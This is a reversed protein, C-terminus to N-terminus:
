KGLFDQWDEKFQSQWKQWYNELNENMKTFKGLLPKLYNQSNKLETESKQEDILKQYLALYELEVARNALKQSTKTAGKSLKQWLEIDLYIKECFETMKDIPLWFGNELYDIDKQDCSKQKYNQAKENELISLSEKRAESPSQSNEIFNKPNLKQSKSSKKILQYNIQSNIKFDTRVKEAKIEIQIKGKQHDTNLKQNSNEDNKEWKELDCSNVFFQHAADDVTIIPLGFSLAEFDTTPLNESRSTNVFVDCFGCIEELDSSQYAGILFVQKELKLELVQSQLNTIEPGNGAIIYRTKPYKLLIPAIIQIGLNLSKEKAIRGFTLFNFTNQLNEQLNLKKLNRLSESEQESKQTIKDIELSSQEWNLPKVDQIVSKKSKNQINELDESKQKFSPIQSNEQIQSEKQCNEGYNLLKIQIELLKQSDKELTEPRWKGFHNRNELFGFRGFVFERWVLSQDKQNIGLWKELKQKESKSLKQENKNNKQWFKGISEELNQKKLNRLKGNSSKELSENLLCNQKQEKEWLNTKLNYTGFEMEKHKKHQNKDCNLLKESETQLEEEWNKMKFDIELNKSDNAINGFKQWIKAENESNLQWDKELEQNSQASDLSFKAQNEIRENPSEISSQDPNTCNEPNPQWNELNKSDAWSNELIRSKPKKLIKQNPQDSKRQIKLVNPIQFIPSAVGIQRLYNATKPSVAVVANHADCVIQSYNRIFVRYGPFSFYDYDEVMTHYTHVCPIQLKMAIIVAEVGGVLTDQSHLIEVENQQLFQVTDKVFNYPMRLDSSAHKPASYSRLPLINDAYFNGPVEPTVIFVQHGLALFAQELNAVAVSVGNLNPTYSNTLIGIKM